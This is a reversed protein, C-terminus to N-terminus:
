SLISTHMFIRLFSPGLIFFIIDTAKQKNIADSDRDEQPLFSDSSVAPICAHGTTAKLNYYLLLNQIHLSNHLILHNAM